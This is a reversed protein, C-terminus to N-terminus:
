FASFTMRVSALRGLLCFIYVVCTHECLWCALLCVHVGGYASSGHGESAAALTQQLLVEM